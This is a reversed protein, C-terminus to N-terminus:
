YPHLPLFAEGFCASFTSVPDVIGMETGAVKSTYGSIFHYMAQEPTLRSVPPMVGLADCTLFIVNKPHGGIAPIRVNKIHELPYCVRTNQTISTDYYNITRPRNPDAHYKTNEVLAGFRVADYIDPEKERTLGDCKAYCGGEINFVNNDTWVHEDDGILSRKPDSSLTTKGTGSLGFLITTDGEPGINASCHMSLANKQPMYYHMVGFIGKKMEGAYSSGLIVQEKTTFNVNVTNKSKIDKLNSDAVFEGANLITFDPGTEFDKEIQDQPARKLMQKM